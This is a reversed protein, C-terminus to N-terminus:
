FTPPAEEPPASEDVRPAPYHLLLATRQPPTDTQTPQEQVPQAGSDAAPTVSWWSAVVALVFPLLALYRWATFRANHATSM